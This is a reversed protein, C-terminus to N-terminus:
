VGELGAKNSDGSLVRIISDSTDATTGVELKATPNTTGIGVMGFSGTGSASIDGSATIHGSSGSAWLLQQLM